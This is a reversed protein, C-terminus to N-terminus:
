NKKGIKVRDRDVTREGECNKKWDAIKRFFLGGATKCNKEQLKQKWRWVSQQLSARVKFAVALRLRKKVKQTRKKERRMKM